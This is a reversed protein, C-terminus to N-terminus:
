KMWGDLINFDLEVAYDKNEEGVLTHWERLAFDQFYQIYEMKVEEDWITSLQFLEAESLKSIHPIEHHEVGRSSCGEYCLWQSTWTSDEFCFFLRLENGGLEVPKGNYRFDLDDNYELLKWWDNVFASVMLTGYEYAHQLSITTKYKM